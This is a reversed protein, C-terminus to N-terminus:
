GMGVGMNGCGMEFSCNRGFEVLVVGEAGGDGSEGFKGGEVGGDGGMDELEEGLEEDGFM